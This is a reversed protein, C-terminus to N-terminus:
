ATKLWNGKFLIPGSPKEPDGSGGKPELSIALLQPTDSKIDAPLSIRIINEQNGGSVLGLSRVKGEKSISWLELSKDAALQPRDVFRVLIQHHEADSSIVAIPRAKDDSLTAVYLDPALIPSQPKIVFVAILILATSAVLSLNRWFHLSDLFSFFATSGRAANLKLRQEINRWVQAQPVQKRSFEMMPMLHQEWERVVQQLHPNINLWTQFRRRAGGRLTGLVYEAALKHQLRKNDHINM